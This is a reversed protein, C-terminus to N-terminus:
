KIKSTNLDATVANFSTKNNKDVATKEKLQFWRTPMKTSLEM